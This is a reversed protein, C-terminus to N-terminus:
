ARYSNFFPAIASGVAFHPLCVWQWSFQVSMASRWALCLLVVLPVEWNCVVCVCRGMSSVCRLVTFASALIRWLMDAYAVVISSKTSPVYDLSLRTPRHWLLCQDVCCCKGEALHAGVGCTTLSVKGRGSSRSAFPAGLARCMYVFIIKSVTISLCTCPWNNTQTAGM